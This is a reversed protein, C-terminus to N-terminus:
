GYRFGVRQRLLEYETALASHGMVRLFDVLAEEADEHAKAPNGGMTRLRRCADTEAVTLANFGKPDPSSDTDVGVPAGPLRVIWDKMEDRGGRPLGTGFDAVAVDAENGEAASRIFSLPFPQGLENMGVGNEEPGTPETLAERLKEELVKAQPATPDCTASVKIYSILLDIPETNM